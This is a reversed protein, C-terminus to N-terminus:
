QSTVTGKEIDRPKESESSDSLDVNELSFMSYDPDRKRMLHQEELSAAEPVELHAYATPERLYRFYDRLAATASWQWFLVGAFVLHVLAVNLVLMLTVFHSSIRHFGFHGLIQHQYLFVGVPCVIAAVSACLFASILYYQFPLLAAPDQTKFSYAATGFVIAFIPAVFLSSPLLYFCLIVSISVHILLVFKVVTLCHASNLLFRFQPNSEDYQVDDNLLAKVYTSM